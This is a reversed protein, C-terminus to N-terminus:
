YRCTTYNSFYRSLKNYNDVIIDNSNHLDKFDSWNLKYAWDKCKHIYCKEFLSFYRNVTFSPMFVFKGCDPYMSHWMIGCCKNTALKKVKRDLISVAHSWKGQLGYIGYNGFYLSNAENGQSAEKYGICELELDFEKNNVSVIADNLMYKDGLKHRVNISSDTYRNIVEITDLEIQRINDHDTFAKGNYLKQQIM